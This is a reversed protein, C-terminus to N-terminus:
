HSQKILALAVIAPLLRANGVELRVGRGEAYRPAAEIADLVAKPLRHERAAAVAREGLAFSVLFRGEGPTMYFIVRDKRRLRLGWGTSASSFGWQPEIPGLREGALELLREWSPRARGLVRVLDADTPQHSRDSFASLSMDHLLTHRLGICISSADDRLVVV